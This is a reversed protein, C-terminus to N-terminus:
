AAGLPMVAGGSYALLVDGDADLTLTAGEEVLWVGGRAIPEGDLTGNGMVPVLWIPGTELPLAAHHAGTWRELIFAPSDALLTRGAGIERPAYPALYPVPDAAAVAEEIHLERPRGYDYLRFTTDSNQQIEILTVGAGIAHITGSPSFFFDGAAVPRWDILGEISGDLAAARLEEATLVERLGIGITAHPEAGLVVWAEDKGRPQAMERATADDPHVQISLRESTFLYKILLDPDARDPRPDEFWIEGVPEDGARPDEFGHGLTHRGWVKEVRRTSLRTATM